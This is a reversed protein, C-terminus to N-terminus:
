LGASQVANAVLPAIEFLAPLTIKEEKYRLYQRLRADIMEQGNLALIKITDRAKGHLAAPLAATAKLLFGPIVVEFWNPQIEFPDLIKNDANKKRSNISGFSYRYNSWEYALERHHRCSLFHDVTGSYPIEIAAYGCRHKFAEALAPRFPSWLDKPPKSPNEALWAGGRQRVLADFDVPEKVPLVPIM